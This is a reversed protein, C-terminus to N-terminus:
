ANDLGISAQHDALLLQEVIVSGGNATNGTSDDDCYIIEYQYGTPDKLVSTLSNNFVQLSEAENYLPVIVSLLKTDQSIM